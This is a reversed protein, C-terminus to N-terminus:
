DAWRVYYVIEANKREQALFAVCSDGGSIFMFGTPTPTPTPTGYKPCVQHVLKAMGLQERYNEVIRDSSAWNSDPFGQPRLIELTQARNEPSVIGPPHLFMEEQQNTYAVAEGHTPLLGLREVAQRQLEADIMLKLPDASRAEQLQSKVYGPPFADPTTKLLNRRGLELLVLESALQKGTIPKGNVEAVVAPYQDAHPPNFISAESLAASSLDPRAILVVTAAYTVSGYKVTAYPVSESGGGCAILAMAIAALGGIVALRM